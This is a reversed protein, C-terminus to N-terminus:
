SRSTTPSILSVTAMSIAAPDGAEYFNLFALYDSFDVVGDSDLDALCPPCAMWRAVGYSPGAGARGFPGSVM